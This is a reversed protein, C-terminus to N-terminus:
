ASSNHQARVYKLLAPHRERGAAVLVTHVPEPQNYTLPKGDLSTLTGGAEHVLLDAAALDWDRSNGGVIATDIEGQAVRVLRLALSHIRPVAVLGPHQATMQDLIRRPGATRAGDLGSGASVAMPADNRTAGQGSVAVFFENSVPAYVVAIAPRGAEVLAASISWDTRGALFARTGDIPDIVWVRNKSLRSSKNESEESLWGYDTKPDSLRARLLEDVAIDAETVPSDGHKNWSKLPSGVYKLALAGAERVAAILRNTDHLRADEPDTALL